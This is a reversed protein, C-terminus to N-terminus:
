DSWLAVVILLITNVYPYVCIGVSCHSLEWILNAYSHGVSIRSWHLIIQHFPLMESTFCGGAIGSVCTILTQDRPRSSRRSFSIAIRELIREPFIGHVSSSFPWLDHSLLLTLCSHARVWITPWFIFM